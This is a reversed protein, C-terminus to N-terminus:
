ISFDQEPSPKKEPSPKEQPTTGEKTELRPQKSKARKRWVLLVVILLAVIIIVAGSAGYLLLNSEGAPQGGSSPTPTATYTSNVEVEAIPSSWSFTAATTGQTGDIGVFYNHIGATVNTPVTVIIQNFAYPGSGTPITVPASSLDYGYFTDTPMWDFHLGLNTIQLDDTSNTIFFIQITVSKGSQLTDPIFFVKVSGEDQNLASVLGSNLLALTITVITITAVITLKRLSM